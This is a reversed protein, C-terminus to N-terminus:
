AEYFEGWPEPTPTLLDEGQDFFELESASFSDIMELRELASEVIRQDLWDLTQVPEAREGAVDDEIGECRGLNRALYMDPCEKM